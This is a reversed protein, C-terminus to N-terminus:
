SALAAKTETSSSINDSDIDSEKLTVDNKENKEAVKPILSSFSPHSYYPQHHISIYNATSPFPRYGYANAYPSPPFATPASWYIMPMFSNAPQPPFMHYATQDHYSVNPSNIAQSPVPSPTQSPIPHFAAMAHTQMSSYGMLGFPTFPASTSPASEPISSRPLNHPKSTSNSQKKGKPKTSTTKGTLKESGPSAIDCTKEQPLFLEEEDADKDTRYYKQLLELNRYKTEKQVLDDPFGAMFLLTIGLAKFFFSGSRIHVLMAVRCMLPGFSKLKNRGMRQRVYENQPLNRTRGGYKICLFLCSPCSPDSPRMAKEEELIRVPCLMPNQRNPYFIKRRIGPNEYLVHEGSDKPSVYQEGKRLISFHNFDLEYMDDCGHRIGLSAFVIIKRITHSQANRLLLVESELIRKVEKPCFAIKPPKRLLSVRGPGTHCAEKSPFDDAPTKHIENNKIEKNEPNRVDASDHVLQKDPPLCGNKRDENRTQNPHQFTQESQGGFSSEFRSLNMAEGVSDEHLTEKLGISGVHAVDMEGNSDDIKNLAEVFEDEEDTDDTDDCDAVSDDDKLKVIQSFQTEDMSMWNVLCDELNANKSPGHFQIEHNIQSVVEVNMVNGNEVDNRSVEFKQRKFKKLSKETANICSGQSHVFSQGNHNIQMTDLSPIQTHTTFPEKHDRRQIQAELVSIKEMLEANKERERQLEASIEAILNVTSEEKVEQEIACLASANVLSACSQLLQENYTSVRQGDNLSTGNDADVEAIIEKITAEDGMGYEKMASELEDRTIYGSSDKDFYQFAKFLHEDRELKYRHMTASIFEIYDITGNGDVDAAEMLQKVEAESLKSGLRALGTKLEEYTITGSKDTDMNTFMAKLGKIEDESLNEAIVKLALKKLKNMARFQKMRSLVASDIPTDAGGEKIWPHDLVQASTIRKKPDQTLMRRVLDKANNDKGAWFPPVGSLLIYLIVGASWIDIEKGYSRRLVEPAVYYASGVIDRYVKREKDDFNVVAENGKALYDLRVVLTTITDEEIFVSLGFDTAKLNSGEAKSSLLFNEPKLDRHMVGMFHCAHVVNVIERCIKAADRESYHGKAIIRDFLEGGACLEMVLHVSQRDEYAGRFEVINPQGSLHQMIQIERKMDERDNKNVLKRKLISKCAYSHGTSNETCLYTIGFQGRGLEKSLAYHQKIDEFPKGLITDVKPVPRTPTHPQTQQPRTPPTQTQIQPVPAKQQSQHYQTPQQQNTQRPYGSTYPETTSPRYGNVDPRPAKEKSGCCGM